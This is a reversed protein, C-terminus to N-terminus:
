AVSREVTPEAPSQVASKLYAYPDHYMAGEPLWQWLPGLGARVREEYFGPLRDSEL